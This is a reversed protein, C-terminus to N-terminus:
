LRSFLEQSNMDNIHKEFELEHTVVNNMQRFLESQIDLVYNITFDFRLTFSIISNKNNIIYCNHPDITVPTNPIYKEKLVGLIFERETTKLYSFTYNYSILANKYFHLEMKAKHTGIKIRYFLIKITGFPYNNVITYNPKGYRKKVYKIGNKTFRRNTSFSIDQDTFLAQKDQLRIQSLYFELNEYRNILKEYYYDRPFNSIKSKFLRALKQTIKSSKVEESIVLGNM